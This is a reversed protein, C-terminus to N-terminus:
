SPLRVVVQDAFRLDVRTPRAARVDGGDSRLDLHELVARLQQLRELDAGEPLLIQARPASMSLVMYGADARSLESVRAMLFPDLSALRGVEALMALVAPDQVRQEAPEAKGRIVPLDMTARAPDVPLLDGLATAARLAGAEVLAVPQREQVRIRVRRPLSREISADAVGPHQRLADIWPRHDSWVSAGTPIGAAILVEHPALFHMGSVEVREIAFLELRALAPPGWWPVALAVAVGLGRVLRPVTLRVRV